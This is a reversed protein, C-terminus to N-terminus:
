KVSHTCAYVVNEQDLIFDGLEILVILRDSYYKVEILREKGHINM